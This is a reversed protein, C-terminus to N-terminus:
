GGIRRRARSGRRRRDWGSRARLVQDSAWAARPVPARVAPMAKLAGVNSRSRENRLARSVLGPRWFLGLVSCPARETTSALGRRGPTKSTESVVCRDVPIAARRSMSSPRLCSSPPDDFGRSGGEGSGHGCSGDWPRDAWSFISEPNPWARGIGLRGFPRFSPWFGRVLGGRCGPSLRSGDQEQAQSGFEDLWGGFSSWDFLRLLQSGMSRVGPFGAAIPYAGRGSLRVSVTAARRRRDPRRRAESSVTEGSRRSLFRRVRLPCGLLARGPMGM